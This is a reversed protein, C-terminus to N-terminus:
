GKFKRSLFTMIAISIITTPIAYVQAIILKWFFSNYETSSPLVLAIVCVIIYIFSPILIKMM